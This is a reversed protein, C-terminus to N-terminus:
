QFFEINFQLQRPMLITFELSHKLFADLEHKVGGFFTLITFLNQRLRFVNPYFYSVTKAVISDM